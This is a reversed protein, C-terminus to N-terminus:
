EPTRLRWDLLAYSRRRRGDKDKQSVPEDTFRVADGRERTLLTKLGKVDYKDLEAPVEESVRIADVLVALLVQGGIDRELLVDFIDDTKRTTLILQDKLAKMSAPEEALATDDKGDLVWALVRGAEEPVWAVATESLAGKEIEKDMLLPVLRRWMASNTVVKPPENSSAFITAVPYVEVDNQRMLNVSIGDGSVLSQLTEADWEGGALEDMAVYRKTCFKMLWQAHPDYGERRIVARARQSTGYDGAIQRMIDLLTGKGTGPPGYCYLMLHRRVQGFLALRMFARLFEHSDRPVRDNLWELFQVPPGSWDAQAAVGTSFRKPDPALRERSLLDYGTGDPFEVVHPAPEPAEMGSREELGQKVQGKVYPSTLRAVDADTLGSRGDARLDVCCQSIARGLARTKPDPQWRKGDHHYWVVEGEDRFACRGELRDRLCMTLVDYDVKGDPFLKGRDVPKVAAADGTPKFGAAPDAHGAAIGAQMGSFAAGKAEEVSLGDALARCFSGYADAPNFYAHRNTANNRDGKAAREKAGLARLMSAAGDSAPLELAALWGDVDYCVALGADSRIEGGVLRGASADQIAWKQNGFKVDCKVAFHRREPRSSPLEAFPIGTNELFARMKDPEISDCDIVALGVGHPVIGAWTWSELWPEGPQWKHDRWRRYKGQPMKTDGEQAMPVITADPHKELILALKDTDAM